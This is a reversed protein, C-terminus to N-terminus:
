KKSDARSKFYANIGFVTGADDCRYESPREASSMLASCAGAVVVFAAWKYGLLRGQQSLLLPPLPNPPLTPTPPPPPLCFTLHILCRQLCIYKDCSIRPRPTILARQQEAFNRRLKTSLASASVIPSPTNFPPEAPSARALFYCQLHM